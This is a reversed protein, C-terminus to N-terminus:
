HFHSLVSAIDSYFPMSEDVAKKIACITNSISEEVVKPLMESLFLSFSLSLSLHLSISLERILAFLYFDIFNM